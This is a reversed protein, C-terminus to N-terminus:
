VYQKDTLLEAKLSIISHDSICNYKGDETKQYPPITQVTNHVINLKGKAVLWDGREFRARPQEGNPCDVRWTPVPRKGGVRYNNTAQLPLTGCSYWLWEVLSGPLDGGLFVATINAFSKIEKCLIDADLLLDKKKAGGHDHASVVLLRYGSPMYTIVLLM